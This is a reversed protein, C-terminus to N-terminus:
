IILGRDRLNAQVKKAIKDLRRAITYYQVGLLKGIDTKTYGHRFFMQFLLREHTELEEVEECMMETQSRLSIRETQTKKDTNPLITQM